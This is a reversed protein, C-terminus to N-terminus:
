IRQIEDWVEELLYGSVDDSMLLRRGSKERIDSRLTMSQHLNIGFQNRMFLGIGFHQYVCFMHKDQTKINEIMEDDMMAIIVDVAESVTQPFHRDLLQLYVEDSTYVRMAEVPYDERDKLQEIYYEEFLLHFNYNSDLQDILKQRIIRGDEESLGGAELLRIFKESLEDDGCLWNVIEMKIEKKDQM